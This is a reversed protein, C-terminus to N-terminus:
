GTFGTIVQVVALVVSRAAARVMLRPQAQRERTYAAHERRSRAESLLQAQRAKGVDQTM